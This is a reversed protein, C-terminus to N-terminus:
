NSEIPMCSPGDVDVFLVRNLFRREFLQNASSDCEINRFPLLLYQRGGRHGTASETPRSFVSCRDSEFGVPCNIGVGHRM